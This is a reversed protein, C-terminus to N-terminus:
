DQMEFYISLSFLLNFFIFSSKFLVRLRVKKPTIVPSDIMKTNTVTIGTNDEALMAITINKGAIKVPIIKPGFAPHSIPVISPTKHKSLAKTAGAEGKSGNNIL